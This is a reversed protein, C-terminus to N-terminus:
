FLSGSQVLAAGNQALLSQLVPLLQSRALPTDTRLTASGHVTPDITYNVKLITGLIQAVVARIDTDAFDLSIDGPGPNGPAGTASAQQPTGYSLEAPPLGQPSGVNGNVRPQAGATAEPLPPLTIITPTEPHHCGVLWAAALLALARRTGDLQTQSMATA